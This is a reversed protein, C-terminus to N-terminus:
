DRERESERVEVMLEHLPVDLAECLQELTRIYVRDVKDSCLHSITAPRMNTMLSLKRQSLGKEQLIEKLRIRIKM